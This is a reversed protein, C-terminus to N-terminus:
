KYKKCMAFFNTKGWRATMLNYDPTNIEPNRTGSEIHTAWVTNCCVINYGLKKFNLCIDVDQFVQQYQEDFGNYDLFLDTPIMLCAGTVADVAINEQKETKIHEPLFYENPNREKSKVMEVGCHQVTKDEYLLKLGIIATKDKMLQKMAELIDSNVFVDNNLFLCRNFMAEKALQNNNKSFQYNELKVVKLSSNTITGYYDLTEQNTSGTDGILIEYNTTKIHEKLLSVCKKIYEPKDKNLIIISVGDKKNKLYKEVKYDFNSLYQKVNPSNDFPEVKEYNPVLGLMRGLYWEAEGNRFHATTTSIAPYKTGWKKYLKKGQKIYAEYGGRRKLNVDGGSHHTIPMRIVYNSLGKELCSLCVDAGYFHFHDLSEDFQINNSRKGILCFEDLTQVRMYDFTYKIASFDVGRVAGKGGVQIGAPGMIGFHGGAKNAIDMVNAFPEYADFTVDQHMWFIIEGESVETLVNLAEASWMYNSKNNVYIFEYEERTKISDKLMKLQTENTACILLSFKAPKKVPFRGKDIWDTKFKSADAYSEKTIEEKRSGHDIHYLYRERIIFNDYGLKKIKLNLDVDQYIDLYREDFGNVKNFLDKRVMLCAATVGEIRINTNPLTKIDVGYGYHGPGYWTGDKQMLAQGDHQILHKRADWVMRHGVCGLNSCLAYKVMESIADYTLFVDNNIFLLLQGEAQAALFNNNKSFNYKHNEFIKVQRSIVQYYAAVNIDTTGTDCLLVEFNPYKVHEFISSICRQIVNNGDKTVICISVKPLETQELWSFDIFPEFYDRIELKLSKDKFASLDTTKENVGYGIIKFNPYKILSEPGCFIKNPKILRREGDLTIVTNERGTYQILAM